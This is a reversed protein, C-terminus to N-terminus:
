GDPMAYRYKLVFDKHEVHTPYGMRRINIIELMGLYKLQDTVIREDFFASKKCANPKICRVYWPNTSHLVDVLTTLQQRFADAVTPKAKSMTRSM